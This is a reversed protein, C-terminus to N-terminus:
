SQCGRKCGGVNYRRAAGSGFSPSRRAFVKGEDGGGLLGPGLRQAQTIANFRQVSMGTGLPTASMDPLNFVERRGSGRHMSMAGVYVGKAPWIYAKAPETSALAVALARQSPMPAPAPLRRVIVGRRRVAGVNIAGREAMSKSPDEIRGDSRQVLAHFESTTEPFPVIRVSAPEGKKVRLAAVDYAAIEMCTAAGRAFMTPGDWYERSVGKPSGHYPVYEVGTGSTWPAEACETCCPPDRGAALQARLWAENLRVLGEAIAELFPVLDATPAFIFRAEM